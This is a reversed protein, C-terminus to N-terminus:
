REGRLVYRKQEKNWVCRMVLTNLDESAEPDDVSCKQWGEDTLKSWFGYERCERVGPWTGDWSLLHPRIYEEYKEGMEDPLGNHYIDPHEEEMTEVDIGFYEYACNCSIM